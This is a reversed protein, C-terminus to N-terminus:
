FEPRHIFDLFGVIRTLRTASVPEVTLDMNHIAPDPDMGNVQHRYYPDAHLFHPYSLYLPMNQQCTSMNFVGQPLCDGACNCRTSPDTTGNDLVSKRMEYRYGNVGNVTVDQVYDFQVARFSV